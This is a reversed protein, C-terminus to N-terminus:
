CMSDVTPINAGVGVMVATVVAVDWDSRRIPVCVCNLEELLVKVERFDGVGDVNALCCLINDSYQGIFM